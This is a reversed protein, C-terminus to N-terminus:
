TASTWSKAAEELVALSAAWPLAERVLTDWCEALASVDETRDVFQGASATEQYGVVNGDESDALAFGGACLGWHAGVASPIVQLSIRPRRAMDILHRLQERMVYAGGVARRLVSEDIIVWLMPPQEHDLIEQRRLRAAVQEEVWEDTMGFRTHFVARAYDATQVLGPVLQPEFWRLRKAEREIWLWEYFWSPYAKYGLGDGMEERLQSLAGGTGLVAELDKTVDETAARDGLEIAQVLSVSKHIRGAIESRTLGAKDRYFRVMGGFVQRPTRAADASGM